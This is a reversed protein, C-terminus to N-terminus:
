VPIRARPSDETLHETLTLIVREVAQADLLDRQVDCRGVDRGVRSCRPRLEAVGERVALNPRRSSITKHHRPHPKPTTHLKPTTNLILNQPPTVTFNKPHHPPTHSPQTDTTAFHSHTHPNHPQPTNYQTISVESINIELM